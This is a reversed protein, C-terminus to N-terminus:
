QPTNVEWYQLSSNLQEMAKNFDAVKNSQIQADEQSNEGVVVQQEIKFDQKVSLEIKKLLTMMMKPDHAEQITPEMPALFGDVKVSVKNRYPLRSIFDLQGIYMMAEKIEGVTSLPESLLSERLLVDRVFQTRLMLIKYATKEFRSYQKIHLNIVANVKEDSLFGCVAQLAILRGLKLQNIRSVEADTYAIENGEKDLKKLPNVERIEKLWLYALEAFDKPPIAAAFEKAYPMLMSPIPSLMEYNAEDMLAQFPLLVKQKDVGDVTKGMLVIMQGMNGNTENMGQTLSDMKKNMSDMKNPMDVMNHIKDCAALSILAVMLILIKM